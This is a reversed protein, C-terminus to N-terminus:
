FSFLTRGYFEVAVVRFVRDNQLLNLRVLLRVCVVCRLM